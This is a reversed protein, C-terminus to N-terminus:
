RGVQSLCSVSCFFGAYRVASLREFHASLLLLVDIQLTATSEIVASM